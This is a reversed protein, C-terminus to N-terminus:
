SQGGGDLIRKGLAFLEEPGDTNQEDSSVNGTQGPETEQNPVVTSNETSNVTSNTRVENTVKASPPDDGQHTLNPVKENAGLKDVFNDVPQDDSLNRHETTVEHQDEKTVKGVREAAHIRNHHAACLWYVNLPLNYDSHHAVVDTEGCLRCAERQLEGSALARKVAKTAQKKVRDSASKTWPILGYHLGDQEPFAAEYENRRWKQGRLGHQRRVIFGAAEAMNLAGSVTRCALSTEAALTDISPFCGGGLDNMHCSLTLLVHKTTASLAGSQLVLHRWTFLQKGAM